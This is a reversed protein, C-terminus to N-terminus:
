GLSQVLEAPVLFGYRLELFGDSQFRRVGLRMIQKPSSVLLQLLHIVEASLQFQRLFHLRLLADFLFAQHSGAACASIGGATQPEDRWGRLFLTLGSLSRFLM